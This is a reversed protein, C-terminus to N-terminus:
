ISTLSEALNSKPEDPKEVINVPRGNSDLEVIGSQKINDSWHLAITFESDVSLHYDM